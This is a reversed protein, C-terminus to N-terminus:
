GEVDIGKLDHLVPKVRDVDGAVNASMVGSQPVLRAHHLRFPRQLGVTRFESVDRAISMRLRAHMSHRNETCKQQLCDIWTRAPRLSELIKDAIKWVGFYTEKDAAPKGASQCFSAM